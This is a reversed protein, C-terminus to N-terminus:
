TAFASNLYAFVREYTEAVSREEIPSDYVSVYTFSEVEDDTLEWSVQGADPLDCALYFRAGSDGTEKALGFRWDLRKAMAMILGVCANREAFAGDKVSRLRQNEAEFKVIDSEIEQLRTELTVKYKAVMATASAALEILRNADAVTLTGSANLRTHIDSLEAGNPMPKQEIMGVPLM